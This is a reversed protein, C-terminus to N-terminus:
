IPLGAGIATLVVLVLAMVGLDLVLRHASDERCRYRSSPERRMVRPLMGVVLMPMAGLSVTRYPM